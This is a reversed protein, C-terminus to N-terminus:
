RISADESFNLEHGALSQFCRMVIKSFLVWDFDNEFLSAIFLFKADPAFVYESTVSSSALYPHANSATFWSIAFPFPFDSHLALSSIYNPHTCAVITLPGLM